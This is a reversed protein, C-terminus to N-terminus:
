DLTSPQDTEKLHEVTVLGALVAVPVLANVLAPASLAAARDASPCATRMQKTQSTSREEV